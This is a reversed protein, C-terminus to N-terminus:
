KEVEVMVKRAMGYGLALSTGGVKITVPGHMFQSSIKRIKYGARIGMAELRRTVGQGGEVGVVKGEQDSGLSTLPIVKKDSLFM